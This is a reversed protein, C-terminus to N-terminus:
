HVVVIKNMHNTASTHIIGLDVVIDQARIDKLYFISCSHTSEFPMQTYKLVWRDSPVNTFFCWIITGLQTGDSHVIIVETPCICNKQKTFCFSIEGLSHTHSIFTQSVILLNLKLRNNLTCLQWWTFQEPTDIGWSLYFLSGEVWM